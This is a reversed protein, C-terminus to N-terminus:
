NNEGDWLQPFWTSALCASPLNSAPSREVMWPIKDDMGPRRRTHLSLRHTKRFGDSLVETWHCSHSLLQIIHGWHNRARCTQFTGTRSGILPSVGPTGSHTATEWSKRPGWCSQGSRADQPFTLFFLATTPQSLKPSLPWRQIRPFETRGARVPARLATVGGTDKVRLTQPLPQGGAESWLVRHHLAHRALAWLKHHGQVVLPRRVAWGTAWIRNKPSWHEQVTTPM